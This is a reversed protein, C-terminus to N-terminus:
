TVNFEFRVACARRHKLISSGSKTFNRSKFNLFHLNSFSKKPDIKCSYCDFHRLYNLSQINLDTKAVAFFAVRCILKM